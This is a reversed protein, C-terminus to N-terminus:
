AWADLLKKADQLDPTAFGETFWGFIGALRERAEAQRGQQQWLRCLSMTTRLEWSKAKQKEAIALSDQYCAEASIPDAPTQQLLIEGKLRHLEALFFDNHNKATAAIAEDASKLADAFNGLRREADACHGLYHALSLAAGTAHFHTLGQRLLELAVAPKDQLCLGAARCLTGTAKWFAFGQEGAIVLEAEASAQAAKGDRLQHHLWGLHHLAYCQSFPHKVAKALEVADQGVKLAQEPYGLCWLALARYSRFTVGSNQGTHGSWVKCRDQNYHALGADCHEVARAFEGRYFLTLAPVFHAEMVIGEDAQAAVLQMIEDALKLCIDFEERVVRWAWIGWLVAMLLHPQGIRQCLARAREFIPGVEPAAYGQSAILVTGLRIQMGLEQGGREPSDPLTALLELGRRFHNAAEASASREQSRLGAKTWYEVAQPALGAETFHHALVEPQSKVMDGFQKELAVAVRRHVQQKKSKLLSQYAADQILAHKFLYTSTPPKGRQYLLEAAVLKDLEAQLVGEDMPAAAKLLDYSFERGLTAAVQVVERNSAMRDLRAILLDQLTAPIQQSVFSAAIAVDGSVEKLKDSEMVMNTYEEVFLPVGDTKAVIQEVLGAPLMKVGTKQQMMETMQKRTLRSLAMVTQHAKSKWPTEFEPRFTLLTLIRDTFGSDVHLALLELTSPDMWHLDEIVFLFPQETANVRLWELIAELTKEKQRIPSLTSPAYQQSLPLSLLAAFHPVIEENALGISQLHSHLKEFKLAPEEDREFGLRREFYDIVSYLGSNQYHPTCRWEVIPREAGTSQATVHEKIVHILRSKGLGAEGIVLVIQGMGEVAQEWRDQLLGVERDRGILPTLGTPGAVDIRSQAENERQVHFFELPKPAGKIAATGLTECFFFGQVLRYTTQSIVVANPRAVADLRTIVNRAEGVVSFAERGPGEPADSVVAMGTHVTVSLNFSIGKDRQLRERLPAVEKMISLGTRIARAAADEYAVPFGFCALTAKETMQMVTGDFRKIVNACAEQYTTHIDHQEEYDLNEVFEVSEFLDCGCALLTIQRREAERLKPRSASSLQGSVSSKGSGSQDPAPGGPAPKIASGCGTCFSATVPNDRSCQVCRITSALHAVTSTSLVSSALSDPMADESAGARRAAPGGPLLKWLEEALDSATIYRDAVRKSMAKLCVQELMRPINPVLQRPPQPDDERVQRLLEDTSPARFPVHGTILEYLVVGLAYIDTRGDIRHGQGSAQEPSMYAPTGAIMGRQHGQMESEDLGLGFDVLVPRQDPTLIINAPKIDRHVTRQAHAHALADAMAAIIRISEQWTFAQKRLRDKLTTGQVFDSVIYVQDDQTGFDHVAVIGPHKLKALRRAENQFDQLSDGSLARDSRHAKIAVPRDLQHDHGLYVTGFAGSGLIETVAYRGFGKPLNASMPAAAAPAPTLKPQSKPSFDQTETPNQGESVSSISESPAVPTAPMKEPPTPAGAPQENM